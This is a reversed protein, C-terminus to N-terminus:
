RAPQITVHGAPAVFDLVDATYRNLLEDSSHTPIQLTKVELAVGAKQLVTQLARVNERALVKPDDDSFMALWRTRGMEQKVKQPPLATIRRLPDSAATAQRFPQDQQPDGPCGSAPKFAFAQAIGRVRDTEGPCRYMSELSIVPALLIGSAFEARRNLVLNLLTANGASMAMAHFRQIGYDTRLRKILAIVADQTASNGWMGNEPTAGHNTQAILYGADVLRDM